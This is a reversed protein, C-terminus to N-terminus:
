GFYFGNRFEVVVPEILDSGTLLFFLTFVFLL